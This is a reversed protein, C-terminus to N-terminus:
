NHEAVYAAVEAELAVALMRRAAERVIEDLLSGGRSCPPQRIGCTFPWQRQRATNATNAPPGDM